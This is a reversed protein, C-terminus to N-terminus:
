LFLGLFGFGDGIRGSVAGTRSAAGGVSELLPGTITRQIVHLGGSELRTAAAVGMADGANRLGRGAGGTVLSIVGVACSARQGRACATATSASASFAM